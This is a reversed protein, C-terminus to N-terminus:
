AKHALDMHAVRDLFKSLEARDEPLMRVFEIGNGFQPDCTVVRAAVLLTDAVQLKLELPTGVQFPYMSEIYCGGLSIDSTSARLPTESADTHVEVPVNVKFRPHKRRETTM